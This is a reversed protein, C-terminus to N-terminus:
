GDTLPAGASARGAVKLVYLADATVFENMQRRRVPGWAVLSRRGGTPRREDSCHYMREEAPFGGGALRKSELLDLAEACREDRILGTEAMVKLGFLVDYRWYAPYRLELFRPDMVTGDHQRRFLKRKLFVEAAARAAALAEESGTHRGYLALGRLPLLTEHFSSTVAQPRRDCNWGGDPWQWRLLNRALADAREEALGLTLLAWLANGEQSACRRPRGQIVQVGAVHQPSLWCALVQERLPILSQDGPPYGIEALAALVWQAGYWKTYPHFPITGAPTRESLLASVRPSSRIEEQLARVEACVRPRDLVDVLVKYRVSPYAAAVVTRRTHPADTSALLRARPPPWSM